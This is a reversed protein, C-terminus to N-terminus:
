TFMVLIGAKLKAAYTNMKAMYTHIRTMHAQIPFAKSLDELYKSKVLALSFEAEVLSNGEAGSTFTRSLSPSYITTHSDDLYSIMERFVIWLENDTTLSTVRPQYVRYISDWDWGRAYFLGYHRDFDQWFLEFNNM